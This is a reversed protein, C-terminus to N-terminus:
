PTGVTCGADTLEFTEISLGVDGSGGVALFVNAILLIPWLTYDNVHEVHLGCAEVVVGGNPAPRIDRVLPLESRHAIRCGGLVLVSAIVWRM